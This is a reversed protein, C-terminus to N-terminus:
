GETRIKDSDAVFNQVLKAKNKTKKKRPGSKVVPSSDAEPSDKEKM